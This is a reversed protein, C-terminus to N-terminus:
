WTIFLNFKKEKEPFYYYFPIFIINLKNNNNNYNLHTYTAIITLVVLLKNYDNINTACHSPSNFSKASLSKQSWESPFLWISVASSTKLSNKIENRLLISSCDYFNENRLWIRLDCWLKFITKLTKSNASIYMVLNRRHPAMLINRSAMEQKQSCGAGRKVSNTLNKM